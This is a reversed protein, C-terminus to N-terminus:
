INKIVSFAHMDHSSFMTFKSNVKQKKFLVSQYALYGNPVPLVLAM